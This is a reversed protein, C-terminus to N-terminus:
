TILAMIASSSAICPVLADTAMNKAKNEWFIKTEAGALDLQMPEPLLKTGGLLLGNGFGINIWNLTAM